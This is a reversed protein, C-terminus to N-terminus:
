SSRIEKNITTIAQQLRDEDKGAITYFPFNYHILEEKYISFLKERMEGGNERVIDPEWPLDTNCLFHFHFNSNRIASDIWEPVRNYVVKFWIKTIILETDFFVFRNAEPYNNNIQSFQHKAILEIDEFTYHIKLKLIYERAFEPIWVTNFHEALQQSLTTKGTCEPGIIAIKKM